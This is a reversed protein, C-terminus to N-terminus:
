SKGGKNRDAGAGGHNRDSPGSDRGRGEDGEHDPDRPRERAERADPRAAASEDSRTFRVTVQPDNFGRETLARTLELVRQGLRDAAVRDSTLITASLSAGRVALRINGLAGQADTFPVVVAGGGTSAAGARLGLAAATLDQSTPAAPLNAVTPATVGPRAAGSLNVRAGSGALAPADGGDGSTTAGPSPHQTSEAAERAAGTATFRESTEKGGGADQASGGPDSRAEGRAPDHPTDGQQGEISVLTLRTMAAMRM